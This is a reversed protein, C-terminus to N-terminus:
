SPGECLVPQKTKWRQHMWVWQDPYTRIHAEIRSTFLATNAEINEKLDGTRFLSVPKEITIRHRNDPLRTIFAIVTKASSRLALQAAGTPTYAKQNFFPVFVGNVRTDQDILLALMGKKRLIELIKRSSSPTGRNITGVRFLARLHVIWRNIRADYLPAAIAHIAYGRHALAAGMLEWNGIHGTILLIGEEKAQQLYEEGEWSVLSDMQTPNLYQLSLIEMLSKGLNKFSNRVIRYSQSDIQTVGFALKYNEFSRTRYRKSLSFFLLGIWGGLATGLRWPLLRTMASVGKLLIFVGLRSVQKM